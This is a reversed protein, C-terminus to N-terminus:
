ARRKGLVILLVGVLVGAPGVLVASLLLLHILGGATFGVVLGVLWTLFMLGALALSGFLVVVGANRM